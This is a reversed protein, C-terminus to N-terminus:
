QETEEEMDEFEWEYPDKKFNLECFGLQYPKYFACDCCSQKEKCYDQITKVAEKVKEVTM